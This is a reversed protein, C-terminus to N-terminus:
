PREWCLEKADSVYLGCAAAFKDLEFGLLYTELLVAIANATRTVTQRTVLESNTILLKSDDFRAVQSRIAKAVVGVTM